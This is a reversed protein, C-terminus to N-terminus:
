ATVQITAWGDLENPIPLPASQVSVSYRVPTRTTKYVELREKGAVSIPMGAGDIGEVGGYNVSGINRRSLIVKNSPLYLQQTGATDYYFGLYSVIRITCGSVVITALEAVGDDDIGLPTINGINIRRNDLLKQIKEDNIIMEGIEFPVILTDPKIGRRTYYTKVHAAIRDYISVGDANWYNDATEAYINSSIPFDAGLFNIDGYEAVTPSIKGTLLIDQCWKEKVMEMDGRIQEVKENMKIMLRQSETFPKDPSEGAALIKRDARNVSDEYFMYPFTYKVYKYGSDQNLIKANDGRRTDTILKHKKFNYKWLYTDDSTMIGPAGFLFKSFFSSTKYEYTVLSKNLKKVGETMYADFESAM